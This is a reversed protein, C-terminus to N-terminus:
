PLMAIFLALGLFIAVGVVYIMRPSLPTPGASRAVFRSSASPPPFAAPVGAPPKPARTKPPAPEADSRSRQQAPEAARVAPPSPPAVSAPQDFLGPLYAEWTLGPDREAAQDM